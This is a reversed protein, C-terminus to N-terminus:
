PLDKSGDHPTPRSIEDNSRDKRAKEARSRCERPKRSSSSMSHAPRERRAAVSINPIWQQFRGAEKQLHSSLKLQSLPRFPFDKELAM